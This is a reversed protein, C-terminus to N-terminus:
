GSSAWAMAAWISVVPPTIPMDSDTRVREVAEAFLERRFTPTGTQSERVYVVATGVRWCRWAEEAIERPIYPVNLNQERTSSSGAVAATIILKDRGSDKSRHQQALEEAYDLRAM